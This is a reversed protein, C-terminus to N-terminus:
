GKVRKGKKGKLGKQSKAPLPKQFPFFIKVSTVLYFTKKSPLATRRQLTDDTKPGTLGHAREEKRGVRREHPPVDM